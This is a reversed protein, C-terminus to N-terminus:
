PHFNAVNELLVYLGVSFYQKVVNSGSEYMMSIDRSVTSPSPLKTGPHLMQVECAYLPDSVSNFPRRSTACRLAILARHAAPSYLLDKPSHSEIAPQIQGSCKLLTKHLNGTGDKTGMQRRRQPPHNSAGYKCTFIFDIYREENDEIRKISVHYHGYVPSKWTKASAAAPVILIHEFHPTRLMGIIDEDGLDWVVEDLMSAKIKAQTDPQGPKRRKVPSILIVPNESLLTPLETEAGLPLKSKSPGICFM